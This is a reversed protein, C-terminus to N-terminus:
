FNFSINNHRFQTTIVIEDWAFSHHELSSGRVHFEVIEKNLETSDVHEVHSIPPSPIPSIPSEVWNYPKDPPEPSESAIIVVSRQIENVSQYQILWFTLLLLIDESLTEKNSIESDKLIVERLPEGGKEMNKKWGTTFKLNKKERIKHHTM